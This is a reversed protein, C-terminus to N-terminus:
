EQPFGIAQLHTAIAEVEPVRGSAVIQGNVVLAPIANIGLNIMAQIDSVEEVELELGLEAAAAYLNDMLLRCLSCGFGLVTVQKRM